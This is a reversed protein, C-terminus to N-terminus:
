RYWILDIRLAGLLATLLVWALDTYGEVREGDTWTLGHGQLLREAYRLSIFADDSIFPAYFWVHGAGVLLVLGLVLFQAARKM